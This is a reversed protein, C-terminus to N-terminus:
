RKIFRVTGGARDDGAIRAFYLGQPLHELSIAQDSSVVRIDSMVQRGTANFIQLTAPKNLGKIYLSGAVPNPYISLNPITNNNVSVAPLVEFHMTTTTNVDENDLAYVYVEVFGVGAPLPDLSLPDVPFFIPGLEATEYPGLSFIMHSTNVDHCTNVDCIGTVWGDPMDNVNRVWRFERTQNTNNTISDKLAYTFVGHEVTATLEGYKVSIEQASAFGVWLVSFVLIYFFKM